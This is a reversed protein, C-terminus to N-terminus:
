ASATERWRAAAQEAAQIFETKADTYGTIDEPFRAALVVKLREYEAAAEPHALLYDRFLLHRDINPDGSQFFHIHHTRPGNASKSFYRRGPIGMEGRARYDLQGLLEPREDFFEIRQVEGLLDLIPKAKIGPIATSGIHHIAILEDGLVLTIRSAEESALKPWTPDHPVLIIPRSM